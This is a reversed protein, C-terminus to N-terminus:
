ISYNLSKEGMWEAVQVKFLEHVLSEKINGYIDFM